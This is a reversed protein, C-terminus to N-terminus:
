EADDEDDGGLFGSLLGGDNDEDDETTQTQDRSNGTGSDDPSEAETDGSSGSGSFAEESANVDALTDGGDSEDPDISRWEFADETDMQDDIDVDENVVYIQTPDTKDTTFLPDPSNEGAFFAHMVDTAEIEAGELGPANSLGVVRDYIDILREVVALGSLLVIGAMYEGDEDDEIPYDGMRIEDPDAEDDIWASADDLGKQSLWEAPGAVVGLISQTGALPAPATLRGLSAEQLVSRVETNSSEPVNGKGFLSGLLGGDERQLETDSYGLTSLDGGTLTQRLDESDLVQEGVAGDGLPETAAFLTTLSVVLRDNMSAYSVQLPAEADEAVWEDNDFLIVNDTHYVLTNLSRMTNTAALKGESSAPLIGVAYVPKDYRDQLYKALVPAGGSGMGGGLGAAILFADSDDLNTEELRFIVDEIDANMVEAGKENNRGVGTGDTQSQGILVRREKPLHRLAVLDPQSSNIVLADVVIGIDGSEDHSAFQDVVKGGAQGVGIPILKM